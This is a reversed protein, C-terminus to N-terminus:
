LGCGGCPALSDAQLIMRKRACEEVVDLRSRPLIVSRLLGRCLWTSQKGSASSRPTSLISFGHSGCRRIGKGAPDWGNHRSGQKWWRAEALLGRSMLLIECEDM